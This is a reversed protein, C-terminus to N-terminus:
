DNLKRTDKKTLMDAFKIKGKSFSNIKIAHILRPSTADVEWLRAISESVGVAEALCRHTLSKTELFESIRM